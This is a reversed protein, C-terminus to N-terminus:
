FPFYERHCRRCAILASLLLLIGLPLSAPEPVAATSGSGQADILEIKFNDILYLDMPTYHSLMFYDFSDRTTIGGASNPPQAGFGIGDVAVEM